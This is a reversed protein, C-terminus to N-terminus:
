KLLNSLLKNIRKRSFSSLHSNPKTAKALLKRLKPREWIQLANPQRHIGSWEWEFYKIDPPYQSRDFKQGITYPSHFTSVGAEDSCISIELMGLSESIHVSSPHFEIAFNILADKVDYFHDNPEKKAFCNAIEALCQIQWVALSMVESVEVGVSKLRHLMSDAQETLKQRHSEEQLRLKVLESARINSLQQESFLFSLEAFNNLKLGTM